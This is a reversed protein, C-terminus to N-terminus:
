PKGRKMGEWADQCDSDEATAESRRSAAEWAERHRRATGAEAITKAAHERASREAIAADAL